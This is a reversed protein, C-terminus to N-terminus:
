YPQEIEGDLWMVIRARQERADELELEATDLQVKLQAILNSIQQVRLSAAQVRGDALAMLTRETTKTNM